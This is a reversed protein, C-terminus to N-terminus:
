DTAESNFPMASQELGTTMRRYADLQAKLGDLAKFSLERYKAAEKWPTTQPPHKRLEKDHLNILTQRLFRLEKHGPYDNAM